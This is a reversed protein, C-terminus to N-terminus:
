GRRRKTKDDKLMTWGGGHNNALWPLIRHLLPTRVKPWSKIAGGVLSQGCGRCAAFQRQSGIRNLPKKAAVYSCTECVPCALEVWTISAFTDLRQWLATQAASDFDRLPM